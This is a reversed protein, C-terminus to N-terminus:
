IYVTIHPEMVPVARVDFPQGYKARLVTFTICTLELIAAKVEHAGNESNKEIVVTIHTTGM